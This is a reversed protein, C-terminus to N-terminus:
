EDDDDDDRNYSDDINARVWGEFGEDQDFSNMGELIFLMSEMTDVNDGGFGIAVRIAEDSWGYCETAFRYLDDATIDGYELM